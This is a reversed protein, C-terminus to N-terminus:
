FLIHILEHIFKSGNRLSQEIVYIDKQYYSTERDDYISGKTANWFAVLEILFNWEILMNTGRTDILDTNSRMSASFHVM